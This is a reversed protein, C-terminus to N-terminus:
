YIDFSPPEDREPINKNQDPDIYDWVKQDNALGKISKHWERFNQPKLVVIKEEDSM